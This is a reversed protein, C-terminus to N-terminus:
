MTSLHHLWQLCSAGRFQNLVGRSSPLCASAEGFLIRLSHVQIDRLFPADFLSIRPFHIPQLACSSRTWLKRPACGCKWHCGDTQDGVQPPFLRGWAALPGDAAPPGM